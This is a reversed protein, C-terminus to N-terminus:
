FYMLSIQFFYFYCSVYSFHIFFCKAVFRLSYSFYLISWCIFGIGLSVKNGPFTEATLLSIFNSVVHYILIGKLGFYSLAFAHQLSTFYPYLNLVFERKQRVTYFNECIEFFVRNYWLFYRKNVSTLTPEPVLLCVSAFFFFFFFFFFFYSFLFFWFCGV